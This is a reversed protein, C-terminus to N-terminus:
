CTSRSGRGRWGASSRGPRASSSRCRRRDTSGRPGPASTGSSPGSWPRRSSTASSPSSAIGRRSTAPTTRRRRRRPDAARRGAGVRAPRPRDPAAGYVLSRFLAEAQFAPDDRDSQYEAAIKRKLWVVSEEPFSPRIALDALWEVARELDEARVRLTAGTPGVELSGGADEVEAALEDATRNATGEELLRGTLYALGPRAEREQGADVFLELAVVGEGAKRETLLRFGNPLTTKRPHYDALTTVAAPIELALPRDHGVTAVRRASKPRAEHPLLVTMSRAPRPLSWGVTLGNEDLYTSAVRRIDDADVALAARHM